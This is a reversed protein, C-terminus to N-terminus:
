YIREVGANKYYHSLIQQYSRDRRAMGIAGDQCMGVGHGFGGGLFKFAKVRGNRGAVTDLVFMSSKLSGFCQRIALEGSVTVLKSNGQIIVKTARGSIGRRTVSIGLIEGPDKGLAQLGNRITEVAVMKTWRFNTTKYGIKNCYSSPNSSVWARVASESLSKLTRRGDPRGQLVSSPDSNWVNESSETHGGCNACYVADVLNGESFLMEGRTEFVARDTRNDERQLGAYVQCHVDGCVLYPDALHRLGIKALLEGRATIAQAKLAAKPASPYIEAPVLGRLLHEASILNAVTLRGNRDITLYIIGRYRRDQRGHWPFGKGYEVDHVTISGGPSGPQLWLVDPASITAEGNTLVITGRARSQLVPLVETEVDQAIALRTAELETQERSDYETVTLLAIRRSD